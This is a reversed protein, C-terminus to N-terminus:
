RVTSRGSLRNPGRSTLGAYSSSPCRARFPCRGCAPASRRCLEQGHLRLLGHASILWNHDNPLAPALMEQARRYITRYNKGDPTLGLRRLVRLGNSDLPLLRASKTFVLIKDAGPEGIMPFQALARRAKPTPLRLAARLNGNWRGLVLEASQRLRSARVRFAIPGGLRTITELKPAPAALIDAPQLGVETRLVSFARRRQVDPVLYGVQEWLILLFPDRSIPPSPEGYHRRLTTVVSRLPIVDLRL